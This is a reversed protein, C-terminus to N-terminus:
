EEAAASQPLIRLERMLTKQTQVYVRHEVSQVLNLVDDPECGKSTVIWNAHDPSIKARGISHGRLGCEEIIAGAPRGDAPLWISGSTRRTNPQRVKRGEKLETIDAHIEASRHGPRGVLQARIVIGDRPLVIQRYLATLESVATRAWAGSFDVSDVSALNKAICPGGSGGIGCNMVVGGGLLGPIVALYELGAIGADAARRAIEPLTAGADAQIVGTDPEVLIKGSFRSM